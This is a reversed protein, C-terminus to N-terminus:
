KQGKERNKETKRFGGPAGDQGVNQAPSCLAWCARGVPAPIKPVAAGQEAALTGHSPIQAAAPSQLVQHFRQVWLPHPAGMPAEIWAPQESRGLAGVKGERKMGLPPFAVFLQSVVGLQGASQHKTWRDTQVSEEEEPPELIETPSRFLGLPCVWRAGFTPSTAVLRLCLVFGQGSM